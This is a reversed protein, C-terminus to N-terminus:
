PTDGNNNRAWLVAGNTRPLEYHIASNRLQLVHSDFFAAVVSGGHRPVSRSDGQPYSAPDSPVRFYSCGTAPVEQWNDADDEDPNSIAAADAFVISQSPSRVQNENASNYVAFPFDPQTDLWGYEPYNMGIGLTNNTSTSGGHADTAPLNLAPCDFTKASAMFGNQRLNDQWWFFRPYQVIFNANPAVWGPIGQQIWLPVMAGHNDDIYLKAATIIQKMNNLCGATQARKKAASLVPLLIAALIAIIAIAVLLEILTFGRRHSQRCRRLTFGSGTNFSGELNM